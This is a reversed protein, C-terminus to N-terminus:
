KNGSAAIPVAQSENVKILLFTSEKGSVAVVVTRKGPEVVLNTDLQVKRIEPPVDEVVVGVIRSAEYHLKLMLKDKLREIAINVGAGLQQPKRLHVNGTRGSPLSVTRNLVFQTNMGEVATMRISQDMVLTQDTAYSEFDEAIELLALPATDPVKMRFEVISVAYVHLTNHKEGTDTVKDGSFGRIAAISTLLFVTTTRLM